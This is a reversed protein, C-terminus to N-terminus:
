LGKRYTYPTVGTWNKFARIFASSESFGSRHAIEEISLGRKGLYHLATDRRVQNKLEKFTSGEAALRRRLTQPHVHLREAVAVLEPSNALETSLVQRVRATWSDRDYSQTLMALIPHRLFRRLSHENQTVPKELAAAPLVLASRAQEFNVPSGMFMSRYDGQAANITHVFDVQSLPLLEGVLWSAFRHCTFLMQEGAYPQLHLDAGHDELFLVRAEGAEVELTPQLSQSFLRYFRCFRALAQGLTQCNIVAHCMMDWSGIPQPQPAYGLSEDGLALMTTVQLDAFRELSIRAQPEKLLRPSLRNRRMLELPDLGHSVANALVANVFHVSISPLRRSM